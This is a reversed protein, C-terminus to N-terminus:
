LFSYSNSVSLSNRRKIPKTKWMGIMTREFWTIPTITGPLKKGWYGEIKQEPRITM